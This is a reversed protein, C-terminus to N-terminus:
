PIYRLDNKINQPKKDPKIKIRESPCIDFRIGRRFEAERGRRPLGRRHNGYRIGCNECIIEFSAGRAEADRYEWPTPHHANQWFM